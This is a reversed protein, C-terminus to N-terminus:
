VQVSKPSDNDNANTKEKFVIDMNNVDNSVNGIKEIKLKKGELASENDLLYRIHRAEEEKEHNYRMIEAKKRRPKFNKKLIFHARGKRAKM